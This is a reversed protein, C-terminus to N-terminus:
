PFAGPGDLHRAGEDPRSRAEKSVMRLAQRLPTGAGHRLAGAAPRAGLSQALRDLDGPDDERWFGAVLQV